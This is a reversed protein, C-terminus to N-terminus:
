WGRNALLQGEDLKRTELSDDGHGPGGIRRAPDPLADDGRRDGGRAHGPGRAQLHGLRRVRGRRRTADRARTPPHRHRRRLLARRAAQGRRGACSDLPSQLEKAATAVLRGAGLRRIEGPDQAPPARGRRHRRHRGRGQLPDDGAEGIRRLAEGPQHRRVRVSRSGWKDIHNAEDAPTASPSTSTTIRSYRWCRRRPSTASARRPWPQDQSPDRIARDSM